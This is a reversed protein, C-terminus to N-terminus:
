DPQVIEYEERLRQIENWVTESVTEESVRGFLYGLV